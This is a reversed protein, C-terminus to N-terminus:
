AFFLPKDDGFALETLAYVAADLRNPSKQKPDGTYSTMEDELESLYGLHHVKGSEYLSSVPEARLLKSKTAHVKTIPANKMIAAINLEVLDGGQNVEGIIQDCQYDKFKAVTVRAWDIPSMIASADEIVYYHGHFDEGAVVIGAEDSTANSTVSPDVAVVVRKLDPLSDVRYPSIMTDMKWLARSNQKTPIGGYIHDYRARNVRKINEAKEVFTPHLNDINDLYTTHIYLVGDKVGNFDVEVGTEGFFRKYVFSETYSPNWCLITRLDMWRSRISDDIKDFTCAEMDTGDDVLEEAEDMQWTTLGEISKLSATQIGSSTKLGMFTIESGSRLNTFTQDKLLFDTSMDGGGYPSETLSMKGQFEPIISKKASVM